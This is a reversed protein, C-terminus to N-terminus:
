GSGTRTAAAPSPKPGTSRLSGLRSLADFWFRAGPLLTLVMLVWGVLVLLFSLIGSALGAGPSALGRQVWWGCRVPAGCAPVTAWGIPLGAGRVQDIQGRLDRLCTAPDKDTCKAAQTAETVVSGRVVQDTYLSRSIQVVNLNFALVLVAGIVLSIWRTHRKYWGSVRSMHDDYWDEISRRFAAIDEGAAKALGQLSDRLHGAPLGALAMRIQTMTTAGTADPIVVDTLARAFSRASVYSPLKRRLANTLTANGADGPIEAKDASSAILPHQMLQTVYPEPPEGAQPKPEGPTRAFLDGFSLKFHSRGDVMTRIGRLLYEGRLGIFRAILETLLSVLVAFTGFVFVLGIVTELVLNDM